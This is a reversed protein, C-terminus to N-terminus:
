MVKRWGNREAIVQWEPKGSALASECYKMLEQKYPMANKICESVASPLCRKALSSVERIAEYYKWLLQKLLEDETEYYFKVLNNYKTSYNSPKCSKNLEILVKSYIKNSSVSM